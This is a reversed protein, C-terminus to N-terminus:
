SIARQKTAWEVTILKFRQAISEQDLGCDWVGDDLVACYTANSDTYLTFRDALKSRANRNSGTLRYVTLFKKPPPDGEERKPWYYFTVAREGRSSLSDDRSVAINGPDWGNPLNLYWSDTVTHYTVCSTSGKGDSGFQQWYILYQASDNEPDLPTLLQPRPIELVGDSNIDTTGVETYSRATALSAGSEIDRTVNVLGDKELVLIDTLIGGELEVAVYVGLRGDALRGVESSVVDRMGDSLATVSTITMAGDQYEYYEALNNGEGSSDQQFVMIEQRGDENLDAVIYSENYATNMLQDAETGLLSYASLIHVGGSLQWGVIIERSGDGTLDEYAVSNISNGEGSLMHVQRYTHDGEERGDGQRFLCVRMPQEEASTVRLFVAATEQEGDGDMDLLQITSTNSGYNITAYEAGLESMTAEITTQLDKYEQPLVPLTYLKDVPQFVCGSLLAALGLALTGLLGRQINHRMAEPRRAGSFNGPPAPPRGGRAPLTQSINYCLNGARGVSKQLSVAFFLFDFIKSFFAQM